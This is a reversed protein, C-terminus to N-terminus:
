AVQKHIVVRSTVARHSGSHFVGFLLYGEQSMKVLDQNQKLMGLWREGPELVHPLQGPQPNPVLFQRTPPRRLLKKLGSSYYQGALLTITTKRDGNNRVEVVVFLDNDNAETPTGGITVMNPSASVELNPGAKAWKYLDWAFVVTAVGAGWWAAIDSATM